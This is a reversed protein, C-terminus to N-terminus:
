STHRLFFMYIFRFTTLDTCLEIKQSVTSLNPDFLILKDVFVRETSDQTLFYVFCVESEM